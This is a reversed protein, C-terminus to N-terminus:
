AHPLPSRAHLLLLRGKADIGLAPPEVPAAAAAVHQAGSM